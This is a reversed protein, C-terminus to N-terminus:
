ETRNRRRARWATGALLSGIGVGIAALTTPEPVRVVRNARRNDHQEDQHGRGRGRGRGEPQAWVTSAFLVLTACALAINRRM